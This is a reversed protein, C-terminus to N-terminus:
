PSVRISGSSMVRRFCSISVCDSEVTNYENIACRAFTSIGAFVGSFSSWPRIWVKGNGMYSSAIRLYPRLRVIYSPRNCCNLWQRKHDVPLLLLAHPSISFCDSSVFDWGHSISKGGRGTIILISSRRAGIRGPDSDKSSGLFHGIPVRRRLLPRYLTIRGHAFENPSHASECLCTFVVWDDLAVRTYYM